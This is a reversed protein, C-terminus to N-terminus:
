VATEYITCLRKLRQRQFRFANQLTLRGAVKEKFVAM